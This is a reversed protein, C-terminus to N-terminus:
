VKTHGHKEKFSVLKNYNIDFQEARVNWVFGIEDLLQIREKSLEGKRYAQRQKDVWLGLPGSRRVPVLTDGYKEKFAVLEDYRDMWPTNANRTIWVFGIEDLLQIREKSLKGNRRAQRQRDVWYGLSGGQKQSVNTNGHKKEYAVLEYYRDM